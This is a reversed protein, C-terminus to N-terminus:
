GQCMLHDKFFKIINLSNFPVCVAHVVGEDPCIDGDCILYYRKSTDCDKVEWVDIEIPLPYNQDYILPIRLTCYKKHSDDDGFDIECTQDTGYIPVSIGVYDENDWEVCQKFMNEGMNM